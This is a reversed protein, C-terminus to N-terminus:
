DCSKTCRNTLDLVRAGSFYPERRSRNPMLARMPQLSVWSSHLRRNSVLDLQLWHPCACEPFMQFVGGNQPDSLGRQCFPTLFPPSGLEVLDRKWCTL